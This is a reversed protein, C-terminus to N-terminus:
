EWYVYAESITSLQVYLGEHCRIPTSLIFSGASDTAQQPIIKKTATPSTSVVEDYINITGGAASPFAIGYFYAPGEKIQTSSTIRRVEM